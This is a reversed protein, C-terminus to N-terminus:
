QPANTPSNKILFGCTWRGCLEPGCPLTCRPRGPPKCNPAPVGVCVAVKIDGTGASADNGTPPVAFSILALLTAPLFTRMAM